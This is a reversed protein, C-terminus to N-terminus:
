AKKSNLAWAEWAATRVERPINRLAREMAVKRGTAYCFMDGRYIIVPDINDIRVTKIVRRGLETLRQQFRDRPVSESLETRVKAVGTGITERTDGIFKCVHCVTRRPHKNRKKGEHRFFIKYNDGGVEFAYM